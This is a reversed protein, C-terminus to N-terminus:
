GVALTMGDFGLEVGAPLNKRGWGFDMTPGLHTLITRTPKLADVWALVEALNAHTPHPAGRTFCDVVFLEVGALAAFAAEDLRKVDTCYAFDGIRLGLSRIYGHDQAFLKAPLGVIDVIQPPEIVVVDLVPRFFFTGPVWPKFAYDFRRELEALTAADAYTPMPAGLLRNLIRIEDLGAIHDAHAHTYFVADIKKIKNSTLQLRLDPGTDVLLNRGDAATVVISPRSRRNKPEAPDLEGWDGAGDPGGIQPSGASGGCGLITVTLASV